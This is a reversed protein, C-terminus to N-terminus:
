LWTRIFDALNPLLDMLAHLTAVLVLSRTRVWLLGFLFGTTSTVVVAYGVCM